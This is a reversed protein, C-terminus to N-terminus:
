QLSRLNRLSWGGGAAPELTAHFRHRVAGDRNRFDTYRLYLIFEVEAREATTSGHNVDDIMARLNRFNRDDGVFGEWAERWERPATSYVRLVEDMRRSQFAAALAGLSEEVGARAAAPDFAPTM